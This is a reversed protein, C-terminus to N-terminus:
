VSIKPLINEEVYQQGLPSIYVLQNARDFEVLRKKHLAGLVSSKFTSFNSYETWAFLDETLVGSAIEDYLLLLTQDNFSLDTRLIRKKGSVSWVAPLNRDVVADVLDQADELSLRHYFRILEAIIWDALRVMTFSDVQNADVDGGVHGIGRKNRLTYLFSIARPILVRFSEVGATKPTQEIKDCEDKFNPIKQGFPISTGILEQQLVRLVTEAFKGVSLGSSDFEGRLHRSKIDSYSALLRTRLAKPVSSLAIDLPHNAPSTSM